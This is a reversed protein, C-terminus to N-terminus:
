VPRRNSKRRLDLDVGVSPLKPSFLDDDSIYMLLPLNPISNLVNGLGVGADLIDFEIPLSVDLVGIKLWSVADRLSALVSTINSFYIKESVKDMGLGLALDVTGNVGLTAVGSLELRGSVDSTLAFKTSIEEFQIFTNNLIFSANLTQNSFLINYVQEPTIDLGVRVSAHASSSISVSSNLLPTSENMTTSPFLNKLFDVNQLLELPKKVLEFISDNFTKSVDLELRVFLEVGDYGGSVSIADMLESAANGINELRRQNALPRPRIFRNHRLHHARLARHHKHKPSNNTAHLARRWTSVPLFDKASSGSFSTIDEFLMSVVDKITPPNGSFEVEACLHFLENNAELVGTLFGGVDPLLGDLSESVILSTPGLISDPSLSISGLKGLIQQFVNLFRCANYNITVSVEKEDFLDDDNFLVQLDQNSNGISFSFPFSAALGGYPDFRLGGTVIEEFGIGIQSNASDMIFEYQDYLRVGLSLEMSADTVNIIGPFLELNLDSVHAYVSAGLENIRLFGTVPPAIGTYITNFVDTVSANVKVGASISLWFAATVELEELLNDVAAVKGKAGLVAQVPALKDFLRNLASQFYSAEFVQQIRISVDLGVEMRALDFGATANQVGDFKLIQDLLSGFSQDLQLLRQSGDYGIDIADLRRSCPYGGILDAIRAKIQNAKMKADGVVFSKIEDILGKDGAFMTGDIIPAVHQDLIHGLEDGVDFSELSKLLDAKFSCVDFDFKVSPPISDFIDDDQARIGVSTDSVKADLKTSFRGSSALGKISSYSFSAGLDFAGSFTVNENSLIPLAESIEGTINVVLSAQIEGLLFLKNIGHHISLPLELEYEVDIKPATLGLSSFSQPPLLTVKLLDELAGTAPLSGRVTLDMTYKDSEAVCKATLSADGVVNAINANLKKYVDIASGTTGNIWATREAKTGFLEEFLGAKFDYVNRVLLSDGVPGLGIEDFAKDVEDAVRIELKDLASMFLDKFNGPLSECISGGIVPPFMFTLHLLVALMTRIRQPGSTPSTTFLSSRRYAKKTGLGIAILVASSIFFIRKLGDAVFTITQAVISSTAGRIDAVALATHGPGGDYGYGCPASGSASAILFVALAPFNM